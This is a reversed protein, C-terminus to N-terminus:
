AGEVDAMSTTWALSEMTSRPRLIRLVAQDPPARPEVVVVHSASARGPEPVLRLGLFLVLEGHIPVYQRDGIVV